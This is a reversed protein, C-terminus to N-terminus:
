VSGILFVVGVHVEQSDFRSEVADARFFPELVQQLSDAPASLVQGFGHMETSSRIFALLGAAEGTWGNKSVQADFIQIANWAEPLLYQKNSARFSRGSSPWTNNNYRDHRKQPHPQISSFLKLKM